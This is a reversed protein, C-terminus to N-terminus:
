QSGNSIKFCLSETISFSFLMDYKFNLNFETVTSTKYSLQLKWQMDAAFTQLYQLTFHYPSIFTFAILHAVVGDCNM